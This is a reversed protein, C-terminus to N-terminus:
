SEGEKLENKETASERRAAILVAIVVAVVVLIEAFIAAAVGAWFDPITLAAVMM